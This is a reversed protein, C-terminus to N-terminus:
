PLEYDRLGYRALSPLELKAVTSVQYSFFCSTLKCKITHAAGGGEIIAGPDERGGLM